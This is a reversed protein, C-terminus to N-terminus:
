NSRKEKITRSQSVITSRIENTTKDFYSQTDGMYNGNFDYSPATLLYVNKNNRCQRVKFDKLRQGFFRMTKKDFYYPSTEKTRRKIEYITM